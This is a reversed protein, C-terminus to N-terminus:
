LGSPHDIFEWPLEFRSNIHRALARVGFTETAYHGSLFVNIGYDEAALFVHHQTEGTVLTDIGASAAEHVMSGGCGTVVGVSHIRLPGCPLLQPAAGVVTTLREGLEERAMDCSCKVGVVYDNYTGFGDVVTLGLARALEHNNGVEPHADLPLHASYIALGHRFAPLLRRYVPGVFREVGAWLLGHHVILLDADIEIASEITPRCADVAVAVKKVVRKGELQLGNHAGEYDPIESVKLFRDLYEALESLEIEGM